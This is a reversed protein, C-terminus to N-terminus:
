PEFLLRGEIIAVIAPMANLQTRCQDCEGNSIGLRGVGCSRRKMERVAIATVSM